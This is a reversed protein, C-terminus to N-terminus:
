MPSQLESTNEESRDGKGLNAPDVGNDLLGMPQPGKPLQVSDSGIVNTTEGSHDSPDVSAPPMAGEHTRRYYLDADPPTQAVTSASYLLGLSLISLWRFSCNPFTM